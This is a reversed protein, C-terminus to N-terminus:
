DRGTEDSPPGAGAERRGRGLIRWVGDAIEPPLEFEVEHQSGDPKELEFTFLWTVGDPSILGRSRCEVARPPLDRGMLLRGESVEEYQYLWRAGQDIQSKHEECVGADIPGSEPTGVNFGSRVPNGCRLVECSM